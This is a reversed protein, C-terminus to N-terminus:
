APTPREHPVHRVSGSPVPRRVSAACDRTSGARRRSWRMLASTSGRMSTRWGGMRDQLTADTVISLVAEALAAADTGVVRGTRGDIVVESASGVDTTVCARGAIAAEILTVPMGENDSTVVV